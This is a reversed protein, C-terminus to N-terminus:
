AEGSEGVGLAIGPGQEHHPASDIAVAEGGDYGFVALGILREGNRFEGCAFSGEGDDFSIGGGGAEGGDLGEVVEIMVFMGFELGGVVSAFLGTEGLFGM